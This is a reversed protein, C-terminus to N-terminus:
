HGKAKLAEVGSALRGPHVGNLVVQAGAEALGEAISFGLGRSSGTVLATRGQLDFLRHAM